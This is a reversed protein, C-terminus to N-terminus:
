AWVIEMLKKIVKETHFDKAIRISNRSMTEIVEPHEILYVLAKHYDDFKKCLIGNNWKLVQDATGGKDLAVIPLGAIMAEAIVRAWPEERKYDPFFVFVDLSDLFDSVTNENEKLCVSGNMKKAIDKKMGMFRFDPKTYRHVIKEVLKPWDTNWKSGLRKSHCGFVEPKDRVRTAVADPDIPSGLIYRPLARVKEYRDQKTIENFFKLNTTAISVDVYKAIEHLHQSPSVLFNYLFLMKKIGVM